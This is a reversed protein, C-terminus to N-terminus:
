AQDAQEDATLARRCINCLPGNDETEDAEPLALAESKTIRATLTVVYDADGTLVLIEVPGGEARYLARAASVARIGSQVLGSRIEATGLAVVSQIYTLPKGM